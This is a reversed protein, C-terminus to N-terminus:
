LDEIYSILDESKEKPLNKKKSLANVFDRILVNIDMDDFINRNKQHEAAEKREELKKSLDLTNMFFFTFGVPLLISIGVAGFLYRNLEARSGMPAGCILSILLIVAIYITFIIMFVIFAKRKM